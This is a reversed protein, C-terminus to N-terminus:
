SFEQRIFNMGSCKSSFVEHLYTVVCKLLVALLRVAIFGTGGDFTSCHLVM